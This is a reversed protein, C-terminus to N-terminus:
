IKNVAELMVDFSIHTYHGTIDKPKHGVIAKIIRDDIGAETMLTIFTHRTDHPKHNPFIAKFANWYATHSPISAIPLLNQVKDCLPIIRIGADTKAQVIEIRNEHCNEPRLNYLEAFRAGTYIYVLIIRAMDNDKHKWLYDIEQQTFASGSRKSTKLNAQYNIAKHLNLASIPLICLKVAYEILQKLLIRVRDMTDETIKVSDFYNQLTFRDLKQMKVDHLPELRKWHGRYGALTGDSRTLAQHAYWEKYVDTLTYDSLRYPDKNYEALAKEAERKTKHYSLYKITPRGDEKWGTIKRCAYPRRRNGTLKVVTGFGNPNRM